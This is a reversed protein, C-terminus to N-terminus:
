GITVGHKRGIAVLKGLDPADPSIERDFEAFMKAAGERSTVSVMRAGGPGFRFWHETGAPLHVFSGATASREEGGVGFTLQGSIVYFCEDWDHSHPPPGSGEPGDQLFIEYSGTQDGSALVTLQEGVINLPRPSVDPTLFIPTAM